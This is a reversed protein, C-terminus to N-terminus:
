SMQFMRFMRFMGQFGLSGRIYSGRHYAFKVDVECENEIYLIVADDCELPAPPVGACDKLILHLIINM